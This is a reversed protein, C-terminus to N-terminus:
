HFYPRKGNRHDKTQLFTEGDIEKGKRETGCEVLVIEWSTRRRRVLLTIMDGRREGVMSWEKGREGMM